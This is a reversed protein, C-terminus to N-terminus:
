VKSKGAPYNCQLHFPVENVELFTNFYFYKCDKFAVCFRLLCWQINFFSLWLM